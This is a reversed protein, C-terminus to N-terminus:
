DAIHHKVIETRNKRVAQKAEKFYVFDGLSQYNSFM